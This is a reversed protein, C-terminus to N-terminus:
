PRSYKHHERPTPSKDGTGMVIEAERVKSVYDAFEGNSLDLAVADFHAWDTSGYKVHKEIMVAGAAVAMASAFWGNDHSSYGPRVNPHDVRLERYHTIVSLNCDEAVAPYSSTCQLLYLEECHGFTALVYDEYAGDTMGTSVVVPGAHNSAVYELHDRHDSVTSPLKVMAPGLERVFDFSSPDLVTAFWGIGLSECLEALYVFDDRELELQRRYDGFTEGFPSHYASSLQEASYFTEVDRKQVKVFDAGAGASARVMRELRPRDGFHNTTLEAVVAVGHPSHESARSVGARRTNLEEPSLASYTKYGVHAVSLESDELLYLAHLFYHEQPSIQADRRDAGGPSFEIDIHESHGASADFDFGVLYVDQRRGRQEAVARAVWLATILLVDEIILEPGMMRGMMLDADQGLPVHPRVAVPVGGADFDWPAIYLSSRHGSRRLGELVWEANLLSIDSPHIREADNIGIVLSDTLVRPDVLDASPGKGLVVITDTSYRSAIHRIQESYSEAM